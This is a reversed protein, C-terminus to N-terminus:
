MNPADGQGVEEVVAAQNAKSAEGRQKSGFLSDRSIISSNDDEEKSDEKVLGPDAQSAEDGQNLPSKVKPVVPSPLAGGKQKLVNVVEKAIVYHANPIIKEADVLIDESSSFLIKEVSKPACLRDLNEGKLFDPYIKSSARGLNVDSSYIVHNIQSKNEPDTLINKVRDQVWDAVDDEQGSEFIKRETIVKKSGDGLKNLNFAIVSGGGGNNHTCYIFLNNNIIKHHFEIPIPM